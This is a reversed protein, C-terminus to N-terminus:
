FFFSIQSVAAFIVSYSVGVGISWSLLNGIIWQRPWLRQLWGQAIGVLLGVIAGTPAGALFGQIAALVLQDSITSFLQVQIFLPQLASAVGWGIATAAVTIVLWQLRSLMSPFALTLAQMLGICGGPILALAATSFLALAHESENEPFNGLFIIPFVTFSIVLTTIVWFGLRSTYRSSDMNHEM